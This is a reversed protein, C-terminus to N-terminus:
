RGHHLATAPRGRAPADHGPQDRRRGRARLAWATGGEGDQVRDMTVAAWDDTLLDRHSVIEVRSPVFHWVVVEEHEPAPHFFSWRDKWKRRRENSVAPIERAKGSLALYGNEGSARPDHYCVTCEANKRLSEAKRSFARSVLAVDLSDGSGLWFTDMIRCEPAGGHWQTCVFGYSRAAKVISSAAKVVAKPTLLKVGDNAAANARDGADKNLLLWGGVAAAACGQAILAAAAKAAFSSGTMLRYVVRVRRVTRTRGFLVSRGVSRGFQGSM